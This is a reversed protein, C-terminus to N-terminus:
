LSTFNIELTFAVFTIQVETIKLISNPFEFLKPFMKYKWARAAVILLDPPIIKGSSHSDTKIISMWTEIYVHIIWCIMALYQPHSGFAFCLSAIISSVTELSDVLYTKRCSTNGVLCLYNVLSLTEKAEFAKFIRFKNGLWRKWVCKYYKSWAAQLAFFFDCGLHHLLLLYLSHSLCTGCETRNEQRKRECQSYEDRPSCPIQCSLLCVICALLHLSYKLASSWSFTM